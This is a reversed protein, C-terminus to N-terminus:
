RHSSSGKSRPEDQRGRLRLSFLGSTGIFIADVGPIWAIEDVLAIPQRRGKKLRRGCHLSIAPPEFIPLNVGCCSAPIIESAWSTTSKTTALSPISSSGTQPRKLGCAFDQACRLVESLEFRSLLITALSPISGGVGAKEPGREVV